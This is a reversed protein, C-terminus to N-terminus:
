ATALEKLKFVVRSMTCLKYESGFYVCYMGLVRLRQLWIKRSDLVQVILSLQCKVVATKSNFRSLGPTVCCENSDRM